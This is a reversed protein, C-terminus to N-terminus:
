ICSMEYAAPILRIILVVDQRFHCVCKERDFVNQGVMGALIHNINFNSVM